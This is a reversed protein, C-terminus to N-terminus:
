DLMDRAERYLAAEDDRGARRADEELRGLVERQKPLLADRRGPAAEDLRASLLAFLEHTRGLRLLRTALEDVVRDDTPDAHLKRTLEEVRAHDAAEDDGPDHTTTTEPDIGVWTRASPPERRDDVKTTGAVRRGVERYLTRAAEDEPAVRTAVGLHRQAALWDGKADREFRAGELLVALTEGKADKADALRAEALDRARAFALSAGALDGLAARWRGELGRAVLAETAHPPIERVRAIAAPRDDLKEALVRALDLHASWVAAGAKEALAIAHTLLEAGRAVKGVSVLAAGLGATAEADRPGYRLAREFLTASEGLWGADRFTRGARLWVAHRARSGVSLADLHEADARADDVRGVALRMALRTWRPGPLAPARAIASDLLALADYPDRALKAAADYALAGLPGVPEVEGARTYAAIASTDDGTEHLLRAALLGEVGSADRLTALAAEARGSGGAGLAHDIEALRRSLERHRPARELADVVLGRAKELDLGFAADDAARALFCGERALISSPSPELPKEGRQAVLLWADDHGRAATFVLGAADPVRAGRDPFFVRAIRGAVGTFVFRAGAREADEAIAHVVRVALPTAPAVLGVGRADHISLAVEEGTADVEVEFALGRGDEANVVGVTAGGRRVFLMVKPTGVGLVGRLKPAAWAELALRPIEVVLRELVGRRHRFRTVGGSVDLPFRLGPLSASLERVTLCGLTVPATLEFGIGSKAIALQLEPANKPQSAPPPTSVRSPRAIPPSPRPV